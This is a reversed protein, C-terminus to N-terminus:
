GRRAGMIRACYPCGFATCGDFHQQDVLMLVQARLREIEAAAALADKACVGREYPALGGYVKNIREVIDAM